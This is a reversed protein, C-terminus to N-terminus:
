VTFFRDALAPFMPSMPENGSDPLDRSFSIAVWELINAQLIGHVFSGPLSCEVPQLSNFMVSRRICCCLMQWLCVHPHPQSQTIFRSQKFNKLYTILFFFSYPLLIFLHSIEVVRDTKCFSALFSFVATSLLWEGLLCTKQM